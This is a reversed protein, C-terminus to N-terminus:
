EPQISQTKAPESGTTDDDEGNTPNVENTKAQEALKAEQEKAWEMSRLYASEPDVFIGSSTFALEPHIKSNNLMSILVQSKTQIDSYNRRTFKIEIDSLKLKIGVVDECIRLVLRLFRREASKFMLETDKARAEATSWGDRMIVASGTDSTSSGGNRNPMGCIDLIAQHLDVKLTQTQTQNLEATELTMDAPQGNHSKIMIAGLEQLQSLGEKDIECNVFKMIAQVFQEVGDLRSSDVSNIADLLSLVIEFAGQKSINAAYEIIPVEGLRHPKESVLKGDRLEYYRDATYCSFVVGNDETARFKVGMMPANGLDSSYVVFTDRPDLTYVKCPNDEDPLPNPLIMRYGLGCIHMWDALMKDKESKMEALMFDNLKNIAEGNSDQQSRNVYQLPEGLLYGTKFTVIENARNEVIKNNIEPRVTKVKRLIAQDGRYIGWLLNIRNRNVNHVALAKDLVDEINASTIQREDTYITIRGFDGSETIRSLTLRM